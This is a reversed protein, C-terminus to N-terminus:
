AAFVRGTPSALRPNILVADLPPTAPAANLVEGRGEAILPASRFCAPVDSGLSLPVLPPVPLGFAEEMLRLTAAADASGGGIGFEFEEAPAISVSDGVDAFVM